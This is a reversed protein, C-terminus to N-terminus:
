RAPLIVMLIPLIIGCMGPVGLSGLLFGGLRCGPCCCLGCGLRFRGSRSLLREPFQPDQLEPGQNLIIIAALSCLLLAFFLIKLGIIVNYFNCRLYFCCLWQKIEYVHQPLSM